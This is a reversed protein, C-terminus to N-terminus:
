GLVPEQYFVYRGLNADKEEQLLYSFCAGMGDSAIIQYRDKKCKQHPILFMGNPGDGEKSPMPGNIVGFLELLKITELM